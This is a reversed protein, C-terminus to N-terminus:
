KQRGKGFSSKWRIMVAVRMATTSTIGLLQESSL